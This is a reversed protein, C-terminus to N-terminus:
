KVGFAKTLLVHLPWICVSSDTAHCLHTDKGCPVQALDQTALLKRSTAAMKISKIKVQGTKLLM